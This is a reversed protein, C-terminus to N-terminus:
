TTGSESSAGASRNLRADIDEKIKRDMLIIANESSLQPLDLDQMRTDGLFEIYVRVPRGIEVDLIIRRAAGIPVGLAAGIRDMIADSLIKNYRPQDGM